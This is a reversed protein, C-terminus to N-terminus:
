QKRQLSPTLSPCNASTRNCSISAMLFTISEIWCQRQRDLETKM